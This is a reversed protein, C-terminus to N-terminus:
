GCAMLRATSSSTSALWSTAQRHITSGRTPEGHVEWTDQYAVNHMAAAVGGEAMVTHARGLLSKCVILVRAGTEAAAIAGRLGAGGAGLVLVDTDVTEYGAVSV